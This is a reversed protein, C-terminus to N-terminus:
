VLMNESHAYEFLEGAIKQLRLGKWKQVKNKPSNIFNKLKEDVTINHFSFQLTKIEIFACNEQFDIYFRM